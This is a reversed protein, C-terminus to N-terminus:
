SKEDKALRRLVGSATKASRTWTFDAARRLGRRRLEDRTEEDGLVRRLANALSALDTPDVLIGAEGVVEPLAGRDSAVVPTGTVMAELAPLGFGEHLSPIVVAEALHYLAPLYREDVSALEHVRVGSGLEDLAAAVDDAYRRESAGVLVLSHPVEPQIMAFARVASGLNKHPRRAGVALVYREPLALAQKAEAVLRGDPSPRFTDAAAESVVTVRGADTGYHTLLRGKTTESVALVAAAVQQAHGAYRPKMSVIAWLRGCAEPMMYVSKVPMRMMKLETWLSATRMFGLIMNVDTVARGLTTAMLIPNNRHMIRDVSIWPKKIEKRFEETYYGTYEGFPGEKHLD